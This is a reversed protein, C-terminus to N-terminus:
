GSDSNDFEIASPQGSPLAIGSSRCSGLSDLNSGTTSATLSKNNAALNFGFSGSVDWLSADDTATWSTLDGSQFNGNPIVPPQTWGLQAMSLTALVLIACYFNKM